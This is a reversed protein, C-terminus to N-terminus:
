RVFIIDSSVTGGQITIADVKLMVPENTFETVTAKKCANLSIALVALLLLKRM